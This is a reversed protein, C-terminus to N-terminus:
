EKIFWEGHLIESACIPIGDEDKIGFGMTGNKYTSKTGNWEAEMTKGDSYAKVAEMFPVPEPKIEELVTDSSIYAVFIGTSMQGTKCFQIEKSESGSHDIATGEVVKYRKDMYKEPNERAAKMLDYAKLKM